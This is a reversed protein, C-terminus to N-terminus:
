ALLPLYEVCASERVWVASGLKEIRLRVKAM